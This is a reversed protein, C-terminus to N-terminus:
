WSIQLIWAFPLRDIKPNVLCSMSDFCIKHLIWHAMGMKNNGCLITTHVFHRCFISIVGGGGGLPPTEEPKGKFRFWVTPTGKPIRKFNGRLGKGNPVKLSLWWLCGVHAMHSNTTGPQGEPQHLFAIRSSKKIQVGIQDGEKFLHWTEPNPAPSVKKTYELVFCKQRKLNHNSSVEKENNRPPLSTLLPKGKAKQVPTVKISTVPNILIGHASLVM